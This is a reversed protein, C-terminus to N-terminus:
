AFRRRALLLAEALIEEHSRPGNKLLEALVQDAKKVAWDALDEAHGVFSLMVWRHDAGEVWQHLRTIHTIQCRYTRGTFKKKGPKWEKLILTDGPMFDRDDYRLEATKLGKRVAGFPEPLTKLEHMVPARM